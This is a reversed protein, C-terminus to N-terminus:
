QAETMISWSSPPICRQRRKYNKMGKVYSSITSRTCTCITSMSRVLIKASSNMPTRIRSTLLIQMQKPTISAWILSPQWWIQTPSSTRPKIWSLQSAATVTRQEVTDSWNMWQKPFSTPHEQGLTLSKAKWTLTSDRSTLIPKLIRARSTELSRVEKIISSPPKGRTVTLLTIRNIVRLHISHNLNSWGSWREEINRIRINLESKKGTIQVSKDHRFYM